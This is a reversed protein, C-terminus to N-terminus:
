KARRILLLSVTAHAPVDIEVRRDNVNLRGAGFAAETLDVQTAELGAVPLTVVTHHPKGSIEQLRLVVGGQKTLSPAAALVIIDAQDTAFSQRVESEKGRQFSERPLVSVIPSAVSEWIRRFGFGDDPQGTWSSVTYTFWHEDPLGPEVTPFVYYGVDRTEIGDSKRWVTSLLTNEWLRWSQKELNPLNWYFAEPSSIAVSLDGARLLVGHSVVADQRAGPLYDTPFTVLGNGNEYQLTEIAVGPLVPFAFQYLHFQDSATGSVIPMRSRDLLNRIELRKVAHYLRYESIPEPGTSRTVVISNFVSGNITQITTRPAPIEAQKFEVSWLIQNFAAHASTSALEKGSERDVLHILAGDQPRVELQYFRNQLVLARAHDPSSSSPESSSAAFLGVGTAPLPAVAIGQGASWQIPTVKGTALDRL